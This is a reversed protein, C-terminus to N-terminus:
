GAGNTCPTSRTSFLPGPRHPNRRNWCRMGRCGLAHDMQEWIEPATGTEHARPNASNAFQNIYYANETEQAIREAMDQYYEPHGKAVDSRTMVVEAGLARLHAIKEQSMKDPLVLLMRYGKQAAVLALALGTNGATAEVITAGPKIKGEREAAEIMSLGIRDKVSGGPNQYELKAFLRCIGTDIHKIEVLPTKGILDIINSAPM